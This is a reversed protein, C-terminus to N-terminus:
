EKVSLVKALRIFEDEDMGLLLKETVQSEINVLKLKDTQYIGKLKLLLEESTYEGGITYQTIKVEVTTVDLTMVEATTQKITRTIM